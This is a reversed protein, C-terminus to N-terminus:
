FPESDLTYYTCDSKNEALTQNKDYIHKCTPTLPNQQIHTCHLTHLRHCAADCTVRLCESLAPRSCAKTTIHFTGTVEPRLKQLSWV